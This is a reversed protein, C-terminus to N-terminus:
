VTVLGGGMRNHYDLEDLIEDKIATAMKSIDAEERIYYHGGTMDIHIGGGQPATPSVSQATASKQINGGQMYPITTQMNRLATSSSKIIGSTDIKLSEMAKEAM